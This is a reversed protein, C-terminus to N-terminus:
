KRLETVESSLWLPEGFRWTLSQEFQVGRSELEFVLAHREDDLLPLQEAADDDVAPDQDLRARFRFHWVAMDENVLLVCLSMGEANSLSVSFGKKLPCICSKISFELQSQIKQSKLL